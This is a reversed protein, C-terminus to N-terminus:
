STDVFLGVLRKARDVLKLRKRCAANSFARALISRAPTRIDERRSHSERWFTDCADPVGLLTALTSMDKLEDIAQIIYTAPRAQSSDPHSLVHMVGEASDPDYMIKRASVRHAMTGLVKVAAKLLEYPLTAKARLLPVLQPVYKDFAVQNSKCDRLAAALTELAERLLEPQKPLPRILPALLAFQNTQMRFYVQADYNPASEYGRDGINGVDKVLKLATLLSPLQKFIAIVETATGKRRLLASLRTTLGALDRLVSDTESRALTAVRYEDRLSVVEKNTPAIDHADKLCEAAAEHRELASCAKAKRVYAKVFAPDYEIAQEADEIAKEYQGLQLCAEARNGYLKGYMDDDIGHAGACTNALSLAESYMAVAEEHRAERFADNGADKLANVAEIPETPRFTPAPTKGHEQVMWGEEPPVKDTTQQAYYAKPAKGLIWGAGGSVCEYSFSFGNPGVYVRGGNRVAEGDREYRGNVQENGAGSVEITWPDSRRLREQRAAENRQAEEKQTRAKNKNEEAMMQQLAADQDGGEPICINSIKRVGANTELKIDQVGNQLQYQLSRLLPDSLLKEMEEATANKPDIRAIEDHLMSAM